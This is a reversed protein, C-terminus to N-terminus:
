NQDRTPVDGGFDMWGYVLLWKLPVLSTLFVENFSMLADDTHESVAIAASLQACLRAIM